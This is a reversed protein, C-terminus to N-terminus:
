SVAISMIQHFLRSQAFTHLQTEKITFVPLLCNIEDGMVFNNKALEPLAIFQGLLVDKTTLDWCDTEANKNRKVKLKHGQLPFVNVLDYPNKILEM